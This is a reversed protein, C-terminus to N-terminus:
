EEDKKSKITEYERKGAPKGMKEFSPHGVM